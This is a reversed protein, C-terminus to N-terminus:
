VDATMYCKILAFALAYLGPIPLSGSAPYSMEDSGRKYLFIVLNLLGIALCKDNSDVWKIASNALM